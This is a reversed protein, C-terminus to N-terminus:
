NEEEINRLIETLDNVNLGVQKALEVLDSCKQHIVEQRRSQNSSIFAGKGQEIYVLGRKELESYAQKVTLYNVCLDKSVQRLSPLKDGFKYQGLIIHQELQETIQAYLPTNSGTNISLNM